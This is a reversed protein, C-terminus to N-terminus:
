LGYKKIIESELESKSFCLIGGNGFKEYRRRCANKVICKGCAMLDEDEIGILMEAIDSVLKDYKPRYFGRINKTTRTRTKVKRGNDNSTLSTNGEIVKFKNRNIKM